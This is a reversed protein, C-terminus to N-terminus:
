EVEDEEKNKELDKKVATAGLSGAVMAGLLAFAASAIGPELGEGTTLARAFAGLTLLVLVTGVIALALWKLDFFPNNKKDM